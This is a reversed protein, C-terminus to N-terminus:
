NVRQEEVRDGRNSRQNRDQYIVNNAAQVGARVRDQTSGKTQVYAKAFANAARELTGVTTLGDKGGNITVMIQGSGKNNFFDSNASSNCSFNCIVSASAEPKDGGTPSLIRRGDKDSLIREAM